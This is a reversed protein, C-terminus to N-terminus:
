RGEHEDDNRVIGYSVFKQETGQSSGTRLARVPAAYPIPKMVCPTM